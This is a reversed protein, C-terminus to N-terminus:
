SWEELVRESSTTEIQLSFRERYLTLLADHTKDRASCLADTPLVVRYGRDVAAMVTALVCVDTEGGTVILTTVGRRALGQALRTGAFASYFKKDLTIAPPSLEALPAVLELLRPDLRERTVERWQRYYDRWAGAVEGPEAPPIFRTFITREPHRRAIALINPLVRPLWDVTWPSSEAFLRQMDVCLHATGRDLPFPEATSAVM